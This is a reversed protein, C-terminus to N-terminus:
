DLDILQAVRGSDPIMWLNRRNGCIEESFAVACLRELLLIQMIPTIQPNYRRFIFKRATLRAVAQLCRLSQIALRWLSPRENKVDSM